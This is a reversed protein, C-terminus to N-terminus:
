LVGGGGRPSVRGRGADIRFYASLLFVYQFIIGRRLPVSRPDM